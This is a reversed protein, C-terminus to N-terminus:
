LFTVHVSGDRDVASVLEALDPDAAATRRLERLYPLHAHTVRGDRGGILRELRAATFATLHIPLAQHREGPTPSPVAGPSSSLALAPM